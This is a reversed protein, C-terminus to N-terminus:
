SNQGPEAMRGAVPINLQWVWPDVTDNAPYLPTLQIGRQRLVAVTEPRSNHLYIPDYGAPIDLTAADTITQLTLDPRLWYSFSLLDSVKSETLMLPNPFSNVRTAVPEFYTSVPRSKNWWVTRQANAVNSWIQIGIFLILIGQVLRQNWSKAPIAAAFGYGLALQLAIVTPFLYRVRLSREGGLVLDPLALALFPVGGVLLLM